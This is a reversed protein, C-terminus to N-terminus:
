LVQPVLKNVAKLIAAAEKKRGQLAYVESLKRKTKVVDSHYVIGDSEMMALAENLTGEANDLQRVDCQLVAFFYLSSVSVGGPFWEANEDDRRQEVCPEWLLLAEEVRSLHWLAKSKAEVLRVVAARDEISGFRLCAAHSVRRADEFKEQCCLVITLREAAMVHVSRFPTENESDAVMERAYVEAEPYRSMAELITSLNHKALLTRDSMQLAKSLALAEIEVRLQSEHQNSRGLQASHALLKQILEEPDVVELGVAKYADCVLKHDKRAKKQCATSCYQRQLCASCWNLGENTGCTECRDMKRLCMHRHLTRDIKQCKLSCYDRELCDECTLMHYESGCVHCTKARVLNLKAKPRLPKSKSASM